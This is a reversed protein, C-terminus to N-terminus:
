KGGCEFSPCRARMEEIGSVNHGRMVVPVRFDLKHYGVILGLVAM